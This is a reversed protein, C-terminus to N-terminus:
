WINLSTDFYQLDETLVEDKGTKAQECLMRISRLGLCAFIPCPGFM